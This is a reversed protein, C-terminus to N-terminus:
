NFCSPPMAPSEPPPPLFALRRAICISRPRPYGAASTMVVISASGCLDCFRKKFLLEACEAVGRQDNHTNRLSGQDDPVLGTILVPTISALWEDGDRLIWSAGTRGRRRRRNAHPARCSM